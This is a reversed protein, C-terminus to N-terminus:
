NKFVSKSISEVMLQKDIENDYIVAITFEKEDIEAVFYIVGYSFNRAKQTINAEVLYFDHQDISLAKATIESKSGNDDYSKKFVEVLKNVYGKLTFAKINQNGKYSALAINLDSSDSKAISFLIVDDTSNTAGRGNKEIYQEGIKITEVFNDVRFTYNEPKAYTWNVSNIKYMKQGFSVFYLCLLAVIFLYKM